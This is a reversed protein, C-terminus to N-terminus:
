LLLPPTLFLASVGRALLQALVRRAAEVDGLPSTGFHDAAIVVLDYVNRDLHAFLAREPSSADFEIVTVAIGTAVLDRQFEPPAAALITVADATGALLAPLPALALRTLESADGLLM